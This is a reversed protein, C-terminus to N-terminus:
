DTLAFADLLDLVQAKTVRGRDQPLVDYGRTPRDGLPGRGWDIRHESGEVRACVYGADVRASLIDSLYAELLCGPLGYGYSGFVYDDPRAEVWARLQDTTVLASVDHVPRQQLDVGCTCLPSVTTLPYDQLSPM